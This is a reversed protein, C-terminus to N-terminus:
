AAERRAEHGGLANRERLPATAENLLACLDQLEDDKRIRCPETQEGRVLDGLYVRFRYLPGVLKHMSLIGVALTLPALFVLTIGLGGALIDFVHQKLVVGDTPLRDAARMMLWTVALSQVLAALASTTLFVLAVRWQIRPEILKKKRRSPVHPPSEMPLSESEIRPGREALGQPRVASSGPGSGPGPGPGHIPSSPRASM